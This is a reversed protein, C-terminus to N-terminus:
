SPSSSSSVHIQLTALFRTCYDDYSSEIIVIMYISYLVVCYNCFNDNVYRYYSTNLILIKNVCVSNTNNVFM